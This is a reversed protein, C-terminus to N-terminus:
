SDTYVGSRPLPACVCVDVSGNNYSCQTCFYFLVCTIDCSHLMTLLMLYEILLTQKWNTM